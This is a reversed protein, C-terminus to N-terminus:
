IRSKLVYGDKTDMIEFGLQMIQERIEDAAQWDKNKKAELRKEALEKIEKPIEVHALEKCLDLSLVKDMELAATFVDKSAPEKTMQWLVAIAKPTNLDDLIASKFDHLYKTCDVKTTGNKHKLLASRLNGLATKASDLGEWTFNLISRYTALLVFYRFVLPEYGRAQLDALTYANGLSKGMKGGDVMMFENHCWFTCMQKGTLSETQAIENPHHIPIHDIGGTHIDFTTGLLELAIASCEIHWGPCGIGWPSDWKQIVNPGCFKWLAFDHANRKEGLDIRVGAKNGEINAGSLEAYRPFKSSDFYVGDSTNYTFGKAELGKIFKIMQPIYKTAPALIKPKRINLLGCDRFFEETYMKAIEEPRIKKERASKEMKDEGDDADDTLHGVDTTNMVDLLDFGALELAKKLVDVFIYARLNGIHATFYVTPGCSYMKVTKDDLPKFEQKKRTKTNYLLM